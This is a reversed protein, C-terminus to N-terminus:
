VISQRRYVKTCHDVFEKPSMELKMLNCYKCCSACNDTTYGKTSNLRDIGNVIIVNNSAIRESPPEGCYVCNGTILVDFQSDTLDFNLNRVKANQKYSRLFDNRGSNVKRSQGSDHRLQMRKRSREAGLCGCSQTRGTILSSQLVDKETGCECLCHWRRHKNAREVEYQVVFRGFKCGILDIKV